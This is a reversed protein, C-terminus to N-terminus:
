LRFHGHTEAVNDLARVQILQTDRDGARLKQEHEDTRAVVNGSYIM